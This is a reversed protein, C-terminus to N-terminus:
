TDSRFVMTIAFLINKFGMGKIIARLESPPLKASIPMSGMIKGSFCLNNGDRSFAEIDMLNSGDVGQIRM